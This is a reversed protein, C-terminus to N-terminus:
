QIQGEGTITMVEAKSVPIEKGRNHYAMWATHRFMRDTTMEKLTRALSLKRGIARNYVDKEHVFADNQAVEYYEARTTSSAPTVEEMIACETRRVYAPDTFHKFWIRYTKGNYTFKM